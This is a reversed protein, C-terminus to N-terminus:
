LKRSAAVGEPTPTTPKLVDDYIARFGTGLSLYFSPSLDYRIFLDFGPGASTSKSLGALHTAVFSGGIASPQTIKFGQGFASLSFIVLGLVLFMSFPKRRM